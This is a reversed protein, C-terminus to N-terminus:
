SQLKEISISLVQNALDFIEKQSKILNGQQEANSQDFFLSMRAVYQCESLIDDITEKMVDKSLQKISNTEDIYQKLMHIRKNYQSIIYDYNERVIDM